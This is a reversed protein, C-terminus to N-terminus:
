ESFWNKLKTFMGDGGRSRLQIRIEEEDIEVMRTQKPEEPEEPKMENQALLIAKEVSTRSYGQGILSYRLTNLDYGKELNKKVYAVLQSNQTPPGEM